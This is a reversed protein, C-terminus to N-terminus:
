CIDHFSVKLAPDDQAGRTGNLMTYLPIATNQSASIYYHLDTDDAAEKPPLLDSLHQHRQKALMQHRQSARHAREMQRYRKAIQKPANRKNTLGYLHQHAAFTAPTRHGWKSAVLRRV